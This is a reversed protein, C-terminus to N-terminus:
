LQVMGTNTDKTVRRTEIERDLEYSLEVRLGCLSTGEGSWAKIGFCVRQKKWHAMVLEKDPYGSPPHKIRDYSPVRTFNADVERDM